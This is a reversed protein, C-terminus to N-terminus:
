LEHSEMRVELGLGEQVDRVRQKLDYHQGWVPAQEHVPLSLQLHVPNPHLPLEPFYRLTVYDLALISSGLRRLSTLHTNLTDSLAM